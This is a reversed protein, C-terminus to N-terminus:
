LILMNDIIKEDDNYLVIAEDCLQHLKGNHKYFHIQLKEGIKINNNM